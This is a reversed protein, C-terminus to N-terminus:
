LRVRGRGMASRHLVHSDILRVTRLWDLGAPLNEPINGKGPWRNQEASVILGNFLPRQAPLTILAIISADLSILTTAVM